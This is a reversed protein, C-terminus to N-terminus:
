YIQINNKQQKEREGSNREKKKEDKEM